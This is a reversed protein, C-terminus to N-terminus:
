FERAITGSHSADIVIADQANRPFGGILVDLLSVPLEDFLQVGVQVGAVLLRGVAEHRLDTLETLTTSHISSDAVGTVNYFVAVAVLLLVLRRIWKLM